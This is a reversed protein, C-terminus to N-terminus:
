HSKAEKEKKKQAVMGNLRNFATFGEIFCSGVWSWWLGSLPVVSHKEMKKVMVAAEVIHIALMITILTPQIKLCFSAFSPVRYLLLDYLFSGPTFNSPKSFCAFTVLCLSFNFLHHLHAYPPIFIKVTIDSRRLAKVADKDMQVLRERAERFTKMPPDFPVAVKNDGFAFKMKDLSIDTMRADGTQWCSVGLAHEICRRISDRHDANMHKIIRERAAADQADTTAM